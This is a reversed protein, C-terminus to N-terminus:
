AGLESEDGGMGVANVMSSSSPPGPTVETIALTALTCMVIHVSAVVMAQSFLRLRRAASCAGNSFM